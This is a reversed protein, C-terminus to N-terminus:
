IAVTGDGKPKSGGTYRMFHASTGAPGASDVDETRVKTGPRPAHVVRGGGLYIAVHGPWFVLDGRQAGGRSVTRLKSWVEQTYTTRPAKVGIDKFALQVLGSCDMGSRTEGGWAYPVGIYKLAADALDSDAGGARGAPGGVGGALRARAAAIAGSVSKELMGSADPGDPLKGGVIDRLGDRIGVDKIGVYLLFAGSTMAALGVGNIGAGKAM